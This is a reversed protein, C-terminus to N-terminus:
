RGSRQALGQAVAAIAIRFPEDREQEALTLTRYPQLAPHDKGQISAWAAWANHVDEGSVKEGKSLALVAYILYLGREDEPMSPAVELRPENGQVYAYIEEAIEDIYTM